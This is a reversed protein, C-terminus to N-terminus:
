LRYFLGLSIRRTAQPSVTSWGTYYRQDTLNDVKLNISYKPASYSLSANVVTYSPLAFSGIGSRNLTLHEGGYNGGLGIGWHQLPGTPVRYNAWLNFLTKPGASEPRQGLYGGDLADATVEADNVSLGTLVSLGEIPSTVVSLEVGRSTVEGGQIQNNLNAPDPMLKNSVTIDYYSATISVKDQYLSAKAGAEYQNAREPDFVRVRPNGGDADTVEAPTLNVFGNMYNAFLSLKDQIPQYVLGLKPSLTVQNKVEAADGEWYSPRASFNDIRLSLMASLAPTFNIVDSFYAGVVDTTATTVGDSTGVLLADVGQTTLVGSDTQDVLSVVGNGVYGTSNNQIERHLYDVGIVIRNRLKGLSFDGIFNQQLNQATTSGNRKSIYRTFTDGDLNDYLYHYYGDTQTNSSGLITQSTWRPTLTYLAQAQVNFGPNRMTLANSTYSREYSNDFLEIGSFSLPGNRNLFLMPANASESLKVEANVLFTLKETANVKLSPAVYFSRGFGADQFTNAYQYAANVRLFTTESLPQNVDATLRNLGNSGAIYGFGGGKRGYPQKTVVNILGGYSILSSGYLTGSPGKIVEVTEVNAPDLTGNNLSAIGNVMTPQVSFGRLSYFEAGDGGRGTSEWLRSVGTANKLAGYLDTVLQDQLVEKSIANYVQPNELDKLPLKAVTASVERKYSNRAATIYVGDLDYTSLTDTATEQALCTCSLALFFPLLLRM